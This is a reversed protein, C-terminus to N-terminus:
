KNKQNQIRKLWLHRNKYLFFFIRTSKQYKYKEKLRLKVKYAFLFLFLGLDLCCPHLRVKKKKMLRNSRRNKSQKDDVWSLAKEIRAHTIWWKRLCTSSKCKATSSKWAHALRITNTRIKCLLPLLSTLVVAIEKLRVDVRVLAFEVLGSFEILSTAMVVSREGHICVQAHKLIGLHTHTNVNMNLWTNALYCSHTHTHMKTPTHISFGTHLNCNKHTNTKM